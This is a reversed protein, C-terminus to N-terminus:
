GVDESPEIFTITIRNQYPVEKAWQAPYEESM